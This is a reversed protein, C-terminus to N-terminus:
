HAGYGALPTIKVAVKAGQAKVIVCRAVPDYRWSTGGEVSEPVVSSAIRLTWAHASAGEVEVVGRAEDVAIRVPTYDIGDGTTRYFTRATQGAPFV